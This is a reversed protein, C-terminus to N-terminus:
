SKKPDKTPPIDLMSSLFDFTAASFCVCLCLCVCVCVCVCLTGAKTKGLLLLMKDTPDLEISTVVM